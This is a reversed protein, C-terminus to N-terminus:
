AFKENFDRQPYWPVTTAGNGITVDAPIQNTAPDVYAAVPVWGQSETSEQMRWTFKWLNASANFEEYTVEAMLWRGAAKGRFTSSNVTGIWQNALTEPSFTQEITEFYPADQPQFVTVEGPQTQDNYTVTIKNGDRDFATRTQVLSARGGKRLQMAGSAQGGEYILEIEALDNSERVNFRRDRLWLLDGNNVITSGPAPVDGSARIEAIAGLQTTATIGSLKVKRRLRVLKGNREEADLDVIEDVTIAM